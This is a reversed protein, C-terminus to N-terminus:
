RFLATATGGAGGLLTGKFLNQVELALALSSNQIHFPDIPHVIGAQELSSFAANTDVGFVYSKTKQDILMGTVFSAGHTLASGGSGRVEKGAEESMLSLGSLGFEKAVSTAAPDAANASTAMAACFLAACIFTRM